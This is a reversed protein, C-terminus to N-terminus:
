FSLIFHVLRVGSVDGESILRHLLNPNDPVVELDAVAPPEVVNSGPFKAFGSCM